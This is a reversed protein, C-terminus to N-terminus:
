LKEEIVELVVHHRWLQKHALNHSVHLGLHEFVIFCHDFCTVVQVAKKKDVHSDSVHLTEALLVILLIHM